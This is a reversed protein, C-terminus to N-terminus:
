RTGYLKGFRELREPRVDCLAAIQFRDPQESFIRGYVDCGRSGCGIISVSFRKQM